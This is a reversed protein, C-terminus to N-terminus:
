NIEHILRAALLEELTPWWMNEPLSEFLTQVFDVSVGAQRFLEADREQEKQVEVGIVTYSADLRYQHFGLTAEAAASRHIGGVYATTCASACVGEVRTNLQHEMFIKALARGEYVNGGRSNLRVQRLQPHEALLARVAKSIGLEISGEISMSQGSPAVSLQYQSAHEEAMRSLHDQEVPLVQTWQLAGLAYVASLLFLVIAGLQTAWVLALNGRTAFDSEAARVVGVLQWLLLVGHSLVVACVLLGAHGSFDQGEPPSLRDQLNFVLIRLGLLNVWFSWFLSQQGRWHALLYDIVSWRKRLTQEPLKM